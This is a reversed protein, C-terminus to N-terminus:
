MYKAYQDDYTKIISEYYQILSDLMLGVVTTTPRRKPPPPDISSSAESTVASRNSRKKKLADLNRVLRSREAKLISLGPQSKKRKRSVVTSSTPDSHIVGDDLAVEDEEDAIVVSQDLSADDAVIDDFPGVPLFDDSM